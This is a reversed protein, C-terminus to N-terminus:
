ECEKSADESAPVEGTALDTFAGFEDVMKDLNLTHLIRAQIETRLAIVMANSYQVLENRAVCRDCACEKCEM